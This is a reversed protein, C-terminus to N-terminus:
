PAWADRSIATAAPSRGSGISRKPMSLRGISPGSRNLRERSKMVMRRMPIM